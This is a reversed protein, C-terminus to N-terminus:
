RKKPLDANDGKERLPLKTRGLSVDHFGQRCRLKQDTLPRLTREGDRDCCESERGKKEPYRAPKDNTIWAQDAGNRKRDPSRFRTSPHCIASSKAPKRQVAVLGVSM